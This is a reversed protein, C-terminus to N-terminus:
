IPWPGLLLLAFALIAVYLFFGIACVAVARLTSEYDLAQRIAVVMAVLMWVGCGLYVFGAIPPILGLLCLIGPTSSFGITRLLEGHDAVTEHAPLLRTGIICTVHAWLYWAALFALTM